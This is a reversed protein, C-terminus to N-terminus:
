VARRGAVPHRLRQAWRWTRSSLVADRERRLRRASHRAEDRQETAQAERRRLSAVRKRLTRVNRELRDLRREATEARRRMSATAEELGIVHDRTTLVNTEAAVARLRQEEERRRLEAVTSQLELERDSAGAPASRHLEALQRHSELLAARKERVEERLSVLQSEYRHVVAPVSLDERSLLAAWPTLFGLDVDSRRFFGREAFDTIWSTTPRVNIHTPERFDTPTSSLLILDGASCLNDIATQAADESLHELVEICTVLDFRGEIPDTISGVWVFPRVDSHASEIADESIDFGVAEMGQTRLAQVFLGRACGADLVTRANTLARVRTAATLFFDRWHANEWSYDAEGLHSAYYRGDYDDAVTGVPADAADQTSM